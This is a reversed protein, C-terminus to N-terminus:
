TFTKVFELLMYAFLGLNCGWLIPGIMKWAGDSFKGVASNQDGRRRSSAPRNIKTSFYRKRNPRSESADFHLGDSNHNFVGIAAIRQSTDM